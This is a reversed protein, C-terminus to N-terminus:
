IGFDLIKLATGSATQSQLLARRLTVHANKIKPSTDFLSLKGAKRVMDNIASIPFHLQRPDLTDTVAPEGDGMTTYEYRDPDLISVIEPHEPDDSINVFRFDVRFSNWKNPNTM